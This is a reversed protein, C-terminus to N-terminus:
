FFSVVISNILYQFIYIAYEMEDTNKERWNELIYYEYLQRLIIFKNWFPM